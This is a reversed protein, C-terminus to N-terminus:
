SRLMAICRVSMECGHMDERVTNTQTCPTGVRNKIKSNALFSLQICAVYLFLVAIDHFLGVMQYSFATKALQGM